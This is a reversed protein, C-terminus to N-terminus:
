GSRGSMWFQPCPLGKPFIWNTSPCASLHTHRKRGDQASKKFAADPLTTSTVLTMIAHCHAPKPWVGSWCAVKRVCTALIYELFRPLAAPPLLVSFHISHCGLDIRAHWINDPTPFCCPSLRSGPSLWSSPPFSRRVSMRSETESKHPVGDTEKQRAARPVRSGEDM